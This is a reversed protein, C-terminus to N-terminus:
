RHSRRWTAPATGVAKKFARSFAAESEYGVMDAVQALSASTNRLKQTAVQMRWNAVYQIPPMGILGIFRDALASRSLGVERGLEDVTWPRTIDRHILALARAVHTDRLGALWGTRGEPLTEAYRRVAEVFLLESLKALVTESGPRGAAVEEAAYQFTSQIWEAGAGRELDLKFAPPLASIVPNGEASDCGLFGCVMRTRAGDGGHRISFLGGNRPPQIIDSGMAPPLNLDSGMVHLDNRPLLVVEGAALALTEGDEGEVRLDLEGEIVYHYLILHSAPGLVPACHEPAVRAAMCWPAFFEAHLFVGGTLHAVRLVDSLADM